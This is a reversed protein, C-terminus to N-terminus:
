LVHCVQFVALLHYGGSVQLSIPKEAYFELAQEQGFKISVNSCGAGTAAYYVEDNLAALESSKPLQQLLAKFSSKISQMQRKYDDLNAAKTQKKEFDKKLEVEKREIDAMITRQESIFFHYGLAAVLAFVLVATVAKAVIPWSGMNNFDVDNIDFNNLDKLDM